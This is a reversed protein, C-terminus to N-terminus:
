SQINLSTYFWNVDRREMKGFITYVDLDENNLRIIPKQWQELSGDVIIQICPSKNLLFNVKEILLDRIYETMERRDDASFLLQDFGIISIDLPIDEMRSVKRLFELISMKDEFLEVKGSEISKEEVLNFGVDM